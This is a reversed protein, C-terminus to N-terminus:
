NIKGKLDELDKCTKVSAIETCTKWIGFYIKFTIGSITQSKLYWYPISLGVIQFIFSLISVGLAVFGFM